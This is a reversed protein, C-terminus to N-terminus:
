LPWNSGLFHAGDYFVARMMLKLSVEVSKQWKKKAAIFQPLGQGMVVVEIGAVCLLDVVREDASGMKGLSLFPIKMLVGASFSSFDM